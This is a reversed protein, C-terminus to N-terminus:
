TSLLFQSIFVSMSYKIEEMKRGESDMGTDKRRKINQWKIEPPKSDCHNNLSVIPSNSCVVASRHCRGLEFIYQM